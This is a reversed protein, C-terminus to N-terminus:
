SIQPIIRTSLGLASTFASEIRGQICWDGCVGIHQAEDMFYGDGTQKSINAYRWKHIAQHNATGLDVGIIASAQEMLFRKVQDPDDELHADAWDNTAHILLSAASERSPKSHNQSIWSIAEGIVLAADFELPPPTEFGLMLSYCGKMQVGKIQDLFPLSAPLFDLAQAPPVASIVWDFDGQHQNHDDYLSWSAAKHAALNQQQHIAAIRTELHLQVKDTQLQASLWKAVANMAPVGVYHPNSHDWHRKAAIIRQDIEAFRGHWPTVIKADIMPAIFKKFADTRAKFFQAGHDFAYPPARRTAMRGGAGRAKDFLTISAHPALKHALSLGSIGAGIIAIKTM